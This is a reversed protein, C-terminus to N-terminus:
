DLVEMGRMLFIDVALGALLWSLLFARSTAPLFLDASDALLEMMPDPTLFLMSRDRYLVDPSLFSLDDEIMPRPTLCWEVAEFFLVPLLTSLTSLDLLWTTWSISYAAASVILSLWSASINTTLPM